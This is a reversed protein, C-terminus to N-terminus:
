IVGLDGGTYLIITAAVIGATETRLIRPGLSVIHAGIDKLRKIEEEEFGGEPGIILHVKQTNTKILSQGISKKIEEEYPVIINKENELLQIMSDFDIINEVEPLIDRKSQKAAENAIQNWRSVKSKERKEDKFRVISRHSMLPYVKKVGIETAKQIILDMKNGKALGQYLVIERKPENKGKYKEIVRLNIEKKSLNEIQCIYIEKELVVEVKEGKRLRIVDKIHKVDNGIIKIKNEEIQEKEIFFRHM